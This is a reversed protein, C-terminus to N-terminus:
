FNATKALVILLLLLLVYHPYSTHLQNSPGVLRSIWVPTKSADGVLQLLHNELYWSGHPVRQYVLMASFPWKYHTTGNFM